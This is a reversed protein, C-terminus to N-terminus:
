IDRYNEYKRYFIRAVVILALISLIIRIGKGTAPLVSKATTNDSGKGKFNASGEVEKQTSSQGGANGGQNQQPTGSSNGNNSSGNNDNNNSGNNNSGNNNSGNNNSGNSSSGNNDINANGNGNNNNANGAGTLVDTPINFELPNSMVHHTSVYVEDFVIADEYHGATANEKLKFNITFIKSPTKVGTPFNILIRADSGSTPNGNFFLGVEPIEDEMTANTIDFVRLKVGAEEMVVYGNETVIDDITVTEYIDKNYHLNAEFTEVGEANEIILNTFSVDVPMVDGPYGNAMYHYYLTGGFTIDEYEINEPPPEHPPNEEATNTTNTSDIQNEVVENKVKNTPRIVNRPETNTTNTTNGTGPEPFEDDWFDDWIPDLYPYLNYDYTWHHQNGQNGPDEGQGSSKITFIIKTSNNAYDYASLLYTGPEVIQQDITYGNCRKGDKYLRYTSIGSLDDALDVVVPGDYEGGDVINTSYPAEKDINDIEFTLTAANGKSDEAVVTHSGNEDYKVVTGSTISKGDLTINFIGSPDTASIVVRNEKNTWQDGKDVSIVPGEKDVETPTGDVVNFVKTSSNDANDLATFTYEGAETIPDGLNYTYNAGDKKVSFSKVGSLNDTINISYTTM